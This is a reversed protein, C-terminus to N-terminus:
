GEAQTGTDGDSTQRLSLWSGFLGALVGAGVLSLAKHWPLFTSFLFSWVIASTSNAILHRGAYWTGALLGLAILGGLLGQLMGELLFPGRITTETAGVLRMIDIEEKTRKETFALLLVNEM